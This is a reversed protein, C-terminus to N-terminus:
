KKMKRRIMKNLDEIYGYSSQRDCIYCLVFVFFFLKLVYLMWIIRRKRCWKLLMESLCCVSSRVGGEM